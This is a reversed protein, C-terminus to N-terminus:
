NMKPWGRGRKSEQLDIMKCRRTHADSSRRKIHGLSILRTDRLKDDISAVKVKNRIVENKTRDLRTHGHMAQIM